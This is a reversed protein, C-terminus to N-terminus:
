NVDTGDLFCSIIRAILSHILIVIDLFVIFVSFGTIGNMVGVIEKKVPKRQNCQCKVYKNHKALKYKFM